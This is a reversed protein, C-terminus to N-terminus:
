ASGPVTSETGAYEYGLQHVDLTQQVTMAPSTQLAQNLVSAPPNAGPHATQWIRWARDVNAHHAFFLPDYAAFDVQGMTGGVWVHVTDHVQWIRRSFDAYNTASMASSWEQQYPPVPIQPVDGGPNRTTQPPWDPQAAAGFVAVPNGPALRNDQGDVQAVTYADPITGATSWDWWPLTVGQVQDQLALELCYLYARHWPLFLDNHHQCWGLSVGHWGAFYEYGRTDNLPIALSIAQRLNALEQPTLQDVNKRIQLRAPTANVAPQATITM